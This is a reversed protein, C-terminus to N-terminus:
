AHSISAKQIEGDHSADESGTSGVWRRVRAIRPLSNGTSKYKEVQTEQVVPSSIRGKISYTCYCARAPVLFPALLVCEAITEHRAKTTLLM